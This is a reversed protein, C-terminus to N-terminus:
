ANAQRALCSEVAARVETLTLREPLAHVRFSYLRPGAFADDKRTAERILRKV